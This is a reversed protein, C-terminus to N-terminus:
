FDWRWLTESNKSKGFLGKIMAGLAEQRIEKNGSRWDDLWM